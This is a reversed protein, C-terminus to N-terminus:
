DTDYDGDLGKLAMRTIVVADNQEGTDWKHQTIDRLAKERSHRVKRTRAALVVSTLYSGLGFAGVALGFAVWYDIM